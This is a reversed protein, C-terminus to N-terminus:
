WLADGDYGMEWIDGYEDSYDYDQEYNEELLWDFWEDHHRPHSDFGCLNKLGGSKLDPADAKGGGRCM